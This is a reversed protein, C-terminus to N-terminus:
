VFLACGDEYNDIVHVEFGAARFKDHQRKQQLTETEGLDKFEIIIVRGDKFFWSDPCGKRGIFQMRRALWGHERAFETVPDQVDYIEAM